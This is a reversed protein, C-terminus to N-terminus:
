ESCGNACYTALKVTDDELAIIYFLYCLRQPLETVAPSLPRSAGESPMIASGM